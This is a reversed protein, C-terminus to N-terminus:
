ASVAKRRLVEGPHAGTFTHHDLVLTGNVFVDSLGVPPAAPDATTAKDLVTKPDFLVLDAQFGPRVEGRHTFGFRQAPLETMKHIAAELSLVHMQRVYRGLVRPFSGAGRPHTPHLSGDTCFMIRPSAVFRRVDDDTM